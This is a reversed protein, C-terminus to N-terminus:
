HESVSQTVPLVDPGYSVRNWYDWLNKVPVPPPFPGSPSGTSWPEDTVCFYGTTTTSNNCTQPTLNPLSLVQVSSLNVPPM